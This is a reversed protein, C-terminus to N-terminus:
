EGKLTNLRAKSGVSTIPNQIAEQIEKEYAEMRNAVAEKNDKLVFPEVKEIEWGTNYEQNLYDREKEARGKTTQVIVLGNSITNLSQRYHRGSNKAKCVIQNSERNIIIYKDM